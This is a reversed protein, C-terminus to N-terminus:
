KGTKHYKLPKCAPFNERRKQVAHATHRALPIEAVRRRDDRAELTLRRGSRARRSITERNQSIELTQLWSFKGDTKRRWMRRAGDTVVNPSPRESSSSTAATSNVARARDLVGDGDREPFARGKRCRWGGATSRFPDARSPGLRSIEHRATM